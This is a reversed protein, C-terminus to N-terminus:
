INSNPYRSKKHGHIYIYIYISNLIQNESFWPESDESGGQYGAPQHLKYYSGLEPVPYPILDLTTSNALFKALSIQALNEIKM